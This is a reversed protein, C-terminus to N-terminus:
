LSLSILLREKKMGFMLTNLHAAVGDQVWLADQKLPVPHLLWPLHSHGTDEQLDQHSNLAPNRSDFM